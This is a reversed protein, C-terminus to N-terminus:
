RLRFGFVIAEIPVKTATVPLKIPSQMLPYRDQNLVDTVQAFLRDSIHGDIAFINWYGAM